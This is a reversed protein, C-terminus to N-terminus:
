NGSPSFNTESNESDGGGSSGFQGGLQKSIRETVSTVSLNDSSARESLVM